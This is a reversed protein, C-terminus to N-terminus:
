PAVKRPQGPNDFTAPRLMREQLQERYDRDLGLGQVLYNDLTGYESLMTDHATDLYEPLVTLAMELTDLDGGHELVKARATAFIESMQSASDLYDTMVDDYHVGLTLLILAVAWGTRDKGATCHVLVPTSDAELLGRLLEGYRQQAGPLLVFTRYGAAMTERMITPNMDDPAIPPKGAALRGLSVPANDPEDALIDLHTVTASAPVVLPRGTREADTRLDMVTKVGALEIANAHAPVVPAASRFIKGYTVTSETGATFGGLDRANPLMQDKLLDM